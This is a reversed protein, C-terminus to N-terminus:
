FYWSLNTDGYFLDPYMINILFFLRCADPKVFLFPKLPLFFIYVSRFSFFWCVVLNMFIFYFYLLNRSSMFWTVQLLLGCTVLKWLFFWYEVYNLVFIVHYILNWSIIFWSVNHKVSFFYWSLVVKVFLFWCAALEVFLVPKLLLFILTFIEHLSSYVLLFNWSSSILFYCTDRFGLDLYILNRSSIIRVFCTERVFIQMCWTEFIFFWCVVIKTFFFIM